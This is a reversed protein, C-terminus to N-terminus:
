LRSAAGAAAVTAAFAATIAAVATVGVTQKACLSCKFPMIDTARVADLASLILAKADAPCGGDDVLEANSNIQVNWETHYDDVPNFQIDRVLPGSVGDALFACMGGGNVEYKGHEEFAACIERNCAFCRDAKTLSWTTKIGTGPPAVPPAPGSRQRRSKKGM